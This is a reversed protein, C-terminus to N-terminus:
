FYYSNPLSFETVNNLGYLISEKAFLLIGTILAKELYENDKFTAENIRGIIDVVDKSIDKNCNLFSYNIPADYEDM